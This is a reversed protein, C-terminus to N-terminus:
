PAASCLWPLYIYIYIYIHSAALARPRSLARCQVVLAAHVSRRQGLTRASRSRGTGRAACNHPQPTQARRFLFRFLCTIVSTMQVSSLLSHQPHPHAGRRAEAAALESGLLDSVADMDARAAANAAEWGASAAEAAAQTAASSGVMGEPADFSKLLQRLLAQVTFLGPSRKRSM